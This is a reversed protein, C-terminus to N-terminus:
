RLKVIFNKATYYAWNIKRMWWLNLLSSNCYDSDLELLKELKEYGFFQISFCIAHKTSRTTGKLHIYKWLKNILLNGNYDSLINQIYQSYNWLFWHIFLLSYFLEYQDSYDISLCSLHDNVIIAVSKNVM